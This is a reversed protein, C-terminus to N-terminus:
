GNRRAEAAANRTAKATAKKQGRTLRRDLAAQIKARGISKRQRNSM